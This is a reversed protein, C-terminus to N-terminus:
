NPPAQWLVQGDKGYFRLSPNNVDVRLIVGPNYNKDFLVLRPGDKDVIVSFSSRGKEDLLSLLPGVLDKFKLMSLTAREVGKDDELIFKNAKIINERKATGAIMVAAALLIIALFIRNNWRARKLETEVKELREETTMQFADKM